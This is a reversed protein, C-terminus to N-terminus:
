LKKIIADLEKAFRKFEDCLLGPDLLENTVKRPNQGQGIFLYRLLSALRQLGWYDTSNSYTKIFPLAVDNKFVDYRKYGSANKTVFSLKYM